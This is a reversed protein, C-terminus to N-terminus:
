IVNRIKKLNKSKKFVPSWRAEYSSVRFNSVLDNPRGGDWLWCDGGKAVIFNTITVIAIGVYLRSTITVFAIGEYLKSTITVIAIGVYL